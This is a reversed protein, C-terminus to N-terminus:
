TFGKIFKLKPEALPQPLSNPCTITVALGFSHQPLRLFNSKIEFGSVFIAM